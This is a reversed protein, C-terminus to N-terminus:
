FFIYKKFFLNVITIFSIIKEKNMIKNKNEKEKKEIIDKDDNIKSAYIINNKNNKIENKYLLKIQGYFHLRKLFVIRYIQEIVKNVESFKQKFYTFLNINNFARRIYPIFFQRLVDKYYQRQYILRLLNFPYSKLFFIIHEFGIKYTYRLDGYSIIDNLANKKSM